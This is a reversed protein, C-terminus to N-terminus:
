LQFSKADSAVKAATKKVIGGSAMLRQRESRVFAADVPAKGKMPVIKQLLAHVASARRDHCAERRALVAAPSGALCEHAQREDADGGEPARAGSPARGTRGGRAVMTSPVTRIRLTASPRGDGPLEGEPIASQRARRVAVDCAVDCM